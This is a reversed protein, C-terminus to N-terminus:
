YSYSFYPLFTSGSSKLNPATTFDDRIIQFFGM